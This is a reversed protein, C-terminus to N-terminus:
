SAAGQYLPAGGCCGCLLIGDTHSAVLSLSLSLLMLVLSASLPALQSCSCRVPLEWRIRVRKESVQERLHIPVLALLPTPRLADLLEDLWHESGVAFWYRRLAAARESLMYDRYREMAAATSEKLGNYDATNLDDMSARMRQQRLSVPISRIGDEEGDSDFCMEFDLGERPNRPPLKRGKAWKARAVEYELTGPGALSTHPLLRSLEACAFDLAVAHAALCVFPETDSDSSLPSDDDELEFCHGGFM